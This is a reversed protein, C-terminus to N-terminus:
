DILRINKGKTGKILFYGRKGIDTFEVKFIHLTM